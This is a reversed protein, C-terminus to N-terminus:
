PMGLELKLLPSPLGPALPLGLARPLGPALPLGLLALPVGVRSDALSVELLRGQEYNLAAQYRTLSKGNRNLGGCHHCNQHIRSCNLDVV